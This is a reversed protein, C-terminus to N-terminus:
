LSLSKENRALTLIILFLYYKLYSYHDFVLKGSSGSMKMHAVTWKSSIDSETAELEKM